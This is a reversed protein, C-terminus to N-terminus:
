GAFALDGTKLKREVAANSPSGSKKMNKSRQRAQRKERRRRQLQEREFKKFAPGRMMLLADQCTVAAGQRACQVPTQRDRGAQAVNALAVTRDDSTLDREVRGLYLRLRQLSLQLRSDM